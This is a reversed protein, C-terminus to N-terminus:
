SLMKRVILESKGIKPFLWKDMSNEQDPVLYISAIRLKRILSPTSDEVLNGRILFITGLLKLICISSFKNPLTFLCMSPKM